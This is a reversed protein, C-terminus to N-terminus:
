LHCLSGDNAKVKNFHEKYTSGYEYIQRIVDVPLNNM